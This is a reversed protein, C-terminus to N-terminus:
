QEPLWTERIRSRARRASQRRSAVEEFTARRRARRTAASRRSCRATAVDVSTSQGTSTPFALPQGRRPMTAGWLPPDVEPVDTEGGLALTALVTAIRDLPLVADVHDFRIASRPMWPQIADSPDQALCLGGAAKIALLGSVGDHGGGTLVVGVVRRGYTAAASELLPDVAPKTFHIRPGRDLKIRDRERLMHVDAPAIYVRGPEVVEGNAAEAVPIAARRGFLVGLDSSHFPSRHMTVAIAATLNAPLKSLLAGVAEIGGASAGVAVITRAVREQNLTV